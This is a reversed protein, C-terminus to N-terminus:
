RVGVPCRVAGPGFVGLSLAIQSWICKLFCCCCYRRSKHACERAQLTHVCTCATQAYKHIHTNIQRILNPPCNAVRWLHLEPKTKHVRRAQRKKRRTRIKHATTTMLTETESPLLIYNLTPCRMVDPRKTLRHELTIYRLIRRDPSSFSFFYLVVLLFTPRQQTRGASQKLSM